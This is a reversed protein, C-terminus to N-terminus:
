SARRRYRPTSTCFYPYEKANQFAEQSVDSLMLVKEKNLLPIELTYAAPNFSTNVLAAVHDDALQEAATVAQTPASADDRIDYEVKHGDITGYYEDFKALIAKATHSTAIDDAAFSGSLDLTLGVKIPGPPHASLQVSRGLRRARRHTGYRRHHRRRGCRGRRGEGLRPQGAVVDTECRSGGVTKDM